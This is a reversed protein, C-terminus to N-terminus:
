KAVWGATGLCVWIQGAASVTMRGAQDASNCDASPPPVGSANDVAPVEICGGSIQLASQPNSTGVGVRGDARVIFTSGAVKFVPQAEGLGSGKVTMSSHVAAAGRVELTDTPDNVALGVNGNEDINFQFQNGTMLTFGMGDMIGQMGATMVIDGTSLIRDALGASQATWLVSGDPFIVSGDVRISGNVHLRETPNTTGIGVKADASVFLADGAQTRVLLPGNSNMGVGLFGPNIVVSTSISVAGSGARAVLTEARQAHLAYAVASVKKRPLLVRGEVSAEVYIDSTGWPIDDPLGSTFWFVGSSISVNMPGMTWSQASGSQDTLRFTMSKVGTYPIGNEKYVGQFDLSGPVWAWGAPAAILFVGLAVRFARGMTM